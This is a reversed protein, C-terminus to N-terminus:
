TEIQDPVDAPKPWADMFARMKDEADFGWWEWGHITASGRQWPGPRDQPWWAQDGWKSHCWEIMSRARDTNPSDTYWNVMWPTGDWVRHALATREDDGQDANWQMVRRYLDSAM